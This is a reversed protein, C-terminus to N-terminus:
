RGYARQAARIRADLLESRPRYNVLDSGLELLRQGREAIRAPNDRHFGAPVSFELLTRDDTNLPAGRSFERLQEPGLLFGALIQFPDDWTKAGLSRVSGWRRELEPLDVELSELHGVLMADAGGYPLWCWLSSEPFAELFSAVVMRLDNESLGRLPLWQLMVGGPNLRSRCAQFHEVTYLSAVGRHYPHIPDSTIVDYRSSTRAVWDRGDGFRFRVARSDWLLGNFRDFERAATVVQPELEAIDLIQPQHLAVAQATMGTGMGIVLASETNRSLLMPLHGLVEQCFTDWPNTSAVVWGDLSLYLYEYDPMRAVAVSSHLGEGQYLVEAGGGNESLGVLPPPWPKVMLALLTMTLALGAGVRSGALLFLGMALGLAALCLLKVSWFPGLRPILIFGAVLSGAIAGVTNYSYARGLAGGLQELDGAVLRGVLPLTAGFLLTQPLLLVAAVTVQGLLYFGFGSFLSAARLFGNPLLHLLGAAVVGSLGIGLVTWALALEPRRILHGRASLAASGVAIGTLFVVLTASFAYTSTGLLGTLARTWLVEFALGLFGTLAFVALASRRWPTPVPSHAQEQDGRVAPLTWALFAALLNLSVALALSSRLGLGPILVFGGLVAGLMAGFTNAAYLGGFGEEVRDLSAITLKSVVPLTAGMLTTPVLVLLFSLPLRGQPLEGLLAIAVGSLAATVGILAEVVAYARSPDVRGGDVWRGGAWSGLALGSMFGALVVSVSHLTAGVLPVLMRVWVVQYVLAAIGSLYFCFLLSARHRSM